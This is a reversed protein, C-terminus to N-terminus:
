RSQGGLVLKRCLRRGVAAKAAELSQKGIGVLRV